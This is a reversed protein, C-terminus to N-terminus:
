LSLTRAKFFFLVARQATSKFQGERFVPVTRYAVSVSLNSDGETYIKNMEDKHFFILVGSKTGLPLGIKLNLYSQMPDVQLM